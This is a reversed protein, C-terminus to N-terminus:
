ACFRGVGQGQAGLELVQTQQECAVWGTTNQYLLGFPSLSKEFQLKTTM